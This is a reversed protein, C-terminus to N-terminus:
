ASTAACEACLGTLEIVRTKPRFGAPAALGALEKELGASMAEAVRGCRECIMFAAQSHAGHGGPCALYANRSEIRHVLGAEVLFELARYITIPAVRRGAEGAVRDILDYAGLAKDEALLAALVMRRQQTLKTGRAACLVEAARLREAPTAHAHTCCAHDHAHLPTLRAM